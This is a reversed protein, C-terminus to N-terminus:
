IQKYIFLNCNFSVLFIHHLHPALYLLLFRLQSTTL